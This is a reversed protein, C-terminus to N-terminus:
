RDLLMEGHRQGLIFADDGKGVIQQFLELGDEAHM